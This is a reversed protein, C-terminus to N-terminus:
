IIQIFEYTKKRDLILGILGHIVEIKRSGWGMRTNIEILIPKKNEFMFDAGFIEFGNKGNWEAFFDKQNEFVTKIINNMEQNNKERDKETWGDPLRENFLEMKIKDNYHTDHINKNDWDSKKYKEVAKVYLKRFSIYVELPKNIPAIVLILVRLHFKHLDVLDPDIIYDELVWEKYNLNKKIWEITEKKNNVIKIGYGIFGKSPKLIMKKEKIELKDLIKSNDDENDNLNIFIAKKFFKENQFVKHLKVKNTIIKKSSGDLMNIWESKKTNFRNKQLAAECTVFIFNYPAKTGKVYNRNELEEIIKNEINIDNDVKGFDIYYTKNNGGGEQNKLELYKTKYKLYKHHYM